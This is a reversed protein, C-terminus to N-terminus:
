YQVQTTSPSFIHDFKFPKTHEGNKKLTILNQKHDCIVINENGNSTEKSSLPRVRIFVRVHETTGPSDNKSNEMKLTNLIHSHSFSYIIM